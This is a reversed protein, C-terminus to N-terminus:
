PKFMNFEKLQLITSYRSEKEDTSLVRIGTWIIASLQRPELDMTKARERVYGEIIKFDQKSVGGGREKNKHPGTHRKYTREMGLARVLWTDVVVANKDGQIAASFATIKQGSIGTGDRIQELQRKIAPMFGEFPKGNLLQYHAKRFLAINSKLTSNISTAAIIDAVLKLNEAGYLDTLLKACEDYWDKDKFGHRIYMDIRSDDM